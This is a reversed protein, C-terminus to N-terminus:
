REYTHIRTGPPETMPRYLIRGAESGIPYSYKVPDIDRQIKYFKAAKQEETDAAQASVETPSSILIEEGFIRGSKDQHTSLKVPNELSQSLNQVELGRSSELLTIRSADPTVKIRFTTGLVGAVAVPTQIGFSKSRKEIFCDLTGELIKTYIRFRQSPDPRQLLITTNSELFFDGHEYLYMHLFSDKGLVIKDLPFLPRKDIDASQLRVREVSDAPHYYAEGSFNKVIGLVPNKDAPNECGTFCVLLAPVLLFKLM